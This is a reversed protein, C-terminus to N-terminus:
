QIRNKFWVKQWEKKLLLITINKSLDNLDMERIKVLESESVDIRYLFNVYGNFDNKILGTILNNLNDVINEVTSDENLYFDIGSLSADKNIQKVLEQMLKEKQVQDLLIVTEKDIFPMM